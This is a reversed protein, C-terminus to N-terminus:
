MGPAPAPAAAPAPAGASAPSVAAADPPPAMPASQDPINQDLHDMLSAKDPMVHEEPDPTMGDDGPMFHHTVIHGGSKGHRIEIHHHKNKSKSGKSKHSGGLVSHARSSSHKDAM